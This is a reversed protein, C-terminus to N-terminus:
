SQVGLFKKGQDTLFWKAPRCEAGCDILGIGQLCLMMRQASRLHLDHGKAALVALCDGTTIKQPHIRRMESLLQITRIVQAQSDRDAKSHPM